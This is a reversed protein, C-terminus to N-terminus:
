AKEETYASERKAKRRAAKARTRGLLQAFRRAPAFPPFGFAHFLDRLCFAAAYLLQAPWVPAWFWSFEGVKKEYAVSTGGYILYLWIKGLSFDKAILSLLLGIGGLIYLAAGILGAKGAPAVSWSRAFQSPTFLSAGGMLTKVRLGANAYSRSLFAGTDKALPVMGHTMVHFYDKREILMMDPWLSPAKAKFLSFSESAMAGALLYMGGIGHAPSLSAELPRASVVSGTRWAGFLRAWFSPHVYLSADCFLLMRCKARKSAVYRGYDKRSVSDTADTVAIAEYGLSRAAAQTGDSSGLDVVIAEYNKGFAAEISSSLKRLMGEQNLATIIFTVPLHRSKPSIRGADLLGAMLAPVAAAGACLLLVFLADL